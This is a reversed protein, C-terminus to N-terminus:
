VASSQAAFSTTIQVTRYMGAHGRVPRCFAQPRRDADHLPRLRAPAGAGSGTDRLTIPEPTGWKLDTFERMNVFFVEATFIDEGGTGMRLLGSLVPLNFTTITHRGPEFLDLSKGDRYFVARQSERVIAQSGLRFDGSGVEPVRVVLEQAGQDAAEIVDIIRPM